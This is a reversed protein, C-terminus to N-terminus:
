FLSADAHPDGLAGPFLGPLPRHGRAKRPSVPPPVAHPTQLNVSWSPCWATDKGHPCPCCTIWARQTTSARALFAAGVGSRQGVTLQPAWCWLRSPSTVVTRASGARRVPVLRIPPPVMPSSSRRLRLSQYSHSWVLRPIPGGSSASENSCRPCCKSGPFFYLRLQNTCMRTQPKIYKVHEVARQSLVPWFQSEDVGFESRRAILSHYRM